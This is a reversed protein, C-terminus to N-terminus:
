AQLKSLARLQETPMSNVELLLPTLEIFPLLVFANRTSGIGRYPAASDAVLIQQEEPM